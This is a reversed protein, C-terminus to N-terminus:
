PQSVSLVASMESQTKDKYYKNSIVFKERDTLKELCDKLWLKEDQMTYNHKSEKCEMNELLSTKNGDEGDISDYLSKIHFRSNIILSLKQKSLDMEQALEDITPERQLKTTLKGNVQEVKYADDQINRAVKVSRN